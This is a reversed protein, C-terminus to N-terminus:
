SPLERLQRAVTEFKAAVSHLEAVGRVPAYRAQNCLQFLGRLEDLLAEPAGSRALQGDVAEETVSAAPCDLREGLTEQLLRFLAAFFQDPNNEAALRKLDAIGNEVLAQVRLRRRLRPNNALSDARRRWLLAGLFALVPLSQAALFLPRSLLPPGIQALVGPNERIPLIDGATQSKQSPQVGALTPAPAAGAAHVVLPIPPQALVHYRGDGPDFFSFSFEPLARVNPDQPTVIQEFTKTGQFGLQGTTETRATPAFTKFGTWASPAPPQLSAIAGSGAIQLHVTVPDGATVNTPGATVTMTYSGVAGTFGAPVNDAPLPLADAHAQGSAISIQEQRVPAFPNAMGFQQFFSDQQQGPSPLVLTLAATFPGLTLPGARNVTLGIAAPLVTYVRSGIQTRYRAGYVGKGVNFGDATMASFNPQSFNQVDDRLYIKLQAALTQGVYIKQAPLALTMFAIQSGSQIASATPANPQVVTLSLPQSSVQHGDIDVTLAPIAFSGVRRPTVSYTITVSSTMEGNILSLNQSEGTRTIDLGPVGPTPVNAPSGGEFSLSLTATQGLSINSQDLSATFTAARAWAALWLVMIAATSVLKLRKKRM